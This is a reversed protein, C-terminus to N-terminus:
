YLRFRLYVTAAALFAMMIFQFAISVDVLRAVRSQRRLRYRLEEHEDFVFRSELRDNDPEYQRLRSPAGGTSMFDFVIWYMWSTANLILPFILLVRLSLPLEYKVLDIGFFSLVMFSSVFLELLTKVKSQWIEKRIAESQQVIVDLYVPKDLAM